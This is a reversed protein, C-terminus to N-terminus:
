LPYMNYLFDDNHSSILINNIVTKLTKLISPTEWENILLDAVIRYEYHDM